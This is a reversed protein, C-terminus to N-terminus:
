PCNRHLKINALSIISWQRSNKTILDHISLPCIFCKASNSAMFLQVRHGPQFSPLFFTAVALNMLFTKPICRSLRGIFM